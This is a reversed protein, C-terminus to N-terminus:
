MLSKSLLDHILRNCIVVQIIDLHRCNSSYERPISDLPDFVQRCITGVVTIFHTYSTMLVVQMIFM